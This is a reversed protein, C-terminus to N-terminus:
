PLCVAGGEDRVGEKGVGVRGRLPCCALCQCPARAQIETSFSPMRRPPPPRHANVDAHPCIRRATESDATTDASDAATDSAESEDSAGVFLRGGVVLM